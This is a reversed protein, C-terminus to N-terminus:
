ALLVLWFFLLFGADRPVREEQALRFERCKESPEKLTAPWDGGSCATKTMGKLPYGM